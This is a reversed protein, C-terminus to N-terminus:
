KEQGTVLFAENLSSASAGTVSCQYSGSQRSRITVTVLVSTGPYQAQTVARDIDEIPIDIM